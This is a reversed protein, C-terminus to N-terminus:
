LLSSVIEKASIELRTSSSSFSTSGRVNDSGAPSAAGWVGATLLWEAFKSVEVWQDDVGVFMQLM